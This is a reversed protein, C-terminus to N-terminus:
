SHFNLVYGSIFAVYRNKNNETDGTDIQRFVSTLIVLSNGVVNTLVLISSITRSVIDHESMKAPLSLIVCFARWNDPWAELLAQCNGYSQQSQLLIRGRRAIRLNECSRLQGPFLRHFYGFKGRSFFCVDKWRAHSSIRIKYIWFQYM